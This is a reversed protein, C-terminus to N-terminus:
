DWQAGSRKFISMFLICLFYQTFVFLLHVFCMLGVTLFVPCIINWTKIDFLTHILIKVWYFLIFVCWFLKYRRPSATHLQAGTHRQLQYEGTLLAEPGPGPLGEQCCGAPRCRGEAPGPHGHRWREGHGAAHEWWPEEQKPWSWASCFLKYFYKNCM